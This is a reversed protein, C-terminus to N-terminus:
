PRMRSRATASRREGRLPYRVRYRDGPRIPTSIRSPRTSSCATVAAFGFEGRGRNDGDHEYLRQAGMDCHNDRERFISATLKQASFASGGISELVSSARHERYPVVHLRCYGISLLGSPLLVRTLSACNYFSWDSISTM